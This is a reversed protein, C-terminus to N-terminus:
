STQSDASGIHMGRITAYHGGGRHRENGEMPKQFATLRGMRIVSFVEHPVHGRFLPEVVQSFLEAAIMGSPGFAAGRRSDWFFLVQGPPAFIWHAINRPAAAVQFHGKNWSGVIRRGWSQGRVYVEGMLVMM